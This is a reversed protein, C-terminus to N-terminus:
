FVRLNTWLNYVSCNLGWCLLNCYCFLLWHGHMLNGIVILLLIRWFFRLSFILFRIFFGFFLFINKYGLVAICKWKFAALWVLNVKRLVAEICQWIENSNVLSVLLHEQYKIFFDMLAISLMDHVFCSSFSWGTFIKVDTLHIPYFFLFNNGNVYFFANVLYSLFIGHPVSFLQDCKDIM